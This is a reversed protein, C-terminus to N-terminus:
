NSELDYILRSLNIISPFVHFPEKLEKLYSCVHNMYEHDHNLAHM